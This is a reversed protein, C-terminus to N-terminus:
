KVTEAEFRARADARVAAISDLVAGDPQATGCALSRARQLRFAPRMKVLGGMSSTFGTRQGTEDFFQMDPAITRTKVCDFVQRLVVYSQNQGDGVLPHELVMVTEVSIPNRGAKPGSLDVYYAARTLQGGAARVDPAPGAYAFRGTESPLDPPPLDSGDGAFTIPVRVVGGAAPQGDVTRPKMRFKDAMALAAKGFGVDPPDESVVACAELRGEGTVRCEIVVKGKVGREASPPILRGIDDASPLAAWEPNTIVAGGSSGAPEASLAPLGTLLSAVALGIAVSRM